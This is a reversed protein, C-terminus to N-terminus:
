CSMTTLTFSNHLNVVQFHFLRAFRSWTGILYPSLFYSFFFFFFDKDLLHIMSNKKTIPKGWKQLFTNQFFFFFFRDFFVQKEFLIQWLFFYIFFWWFEDWSSVVVHSLAEPKEVKINKSYQWIQSFVRIL